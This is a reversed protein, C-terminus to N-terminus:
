SKGTLDVNQMLNIGEIKTILSIICWYDYGKINLIDSPNMSMMLLDHYRNCVNPLFKFSYNLFYLLSLYQCYYCEKSSSTTNVDTQEIVDIIIDFYQM